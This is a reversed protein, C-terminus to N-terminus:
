KGTSYSSGSISASGALLRRWRVGLYSSSAFRGTTRPSAQVRLLLPLLPRRWAPLSPRDPYRWRPSSASPRPDGRRLFPGRHPRLLGHTRYDVSSVRHPRLLGHTRETEPAPDATLVCFATPGFMTFPLPSRPSSASPRPGSESPRPRSATLVCFATPGLVDHSATLVCFATPGSMSFATLVCFATPGPPIPRDVRVLGHARHSPPGCPCPRPDSRRSRPSSASPRPGPSRPRPSSGSSRPGARSCRPSSGCSRPGAPARPGRPWATWVSLATPCSSCCAACLGNNSRFAPNQFSGTSTTRSSALTSSCPTTTPTSAMGSARPWAYLCSLPRPSPSPQHLPALSPRQRTGASSHAPGTCLGRLRRPSAQGPRGGMLPAAPADARKATAAYGLGLRGPTASAGPEPECRGHATGPAGFDRAGRQSAERGALM